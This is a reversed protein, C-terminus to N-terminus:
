INQYKSIYIYDLVTGGAVFAPHVEDSAAALLDSSAMRGIRVMVSPMGVDDLLVTNTGGSLREVASKFDPYIDLCDRANCTNKELRGASEDACAQAVETADRLENDAPNIM